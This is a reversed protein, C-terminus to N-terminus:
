LVTSGVIILVIAFITIYPWPSAFNFTVGLKAHMKPVMLAPDKPNFYFPGKWNAPDKRMAALIAENPKNRM